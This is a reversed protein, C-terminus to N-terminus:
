QYDHHDNMEYWSSCTFIFVLVVVMVVLVVIAIIFLTDNKILNYRMLTENFSEMNADSKTFNINSKNYVNYKHSLSNYIKGRFPNYKNFAIDDYVMTTIINDNNKVNHLMESLMLVDSQHRYNSYDKSGSM